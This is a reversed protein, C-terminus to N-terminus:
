TPRNAHRARWLPLRRLKGVHRIDVTMKQASVFYVGGGLPWWRRGAKEMWGWRRRNQKDHPPLFAAFRGEIVAMDLLALWDRLRLLSIWNDRWPMRRIRAGLLSWPNFGVILLRGQPRLVRAAERLVAHPSHSSELAHVLLIFDVSDAAFPLASLDATITGGDGVTARNRIPARLLSPYQCLGMQLAFYGFADESMRRCYRLEQARVWRGFDANFWEEPQNEDIDRILM